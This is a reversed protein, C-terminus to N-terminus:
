SRRARSACIGTLRVDGRRRHGADRTPVERPADRPTAAVKFFATGEDVEDFMAGYLMTAGTALAAEIQRWLFRGGHRPIQNVPADPNMNRWSFGPFVVPM